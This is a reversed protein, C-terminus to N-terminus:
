LVPFRHKSDAETARRGRFGLATRYNYASITGVLLLVAACFNAAFYETIMAISSANAALLPRLEADLEIIAMLAMYNGMGTGVVGPVFVLVPLILWLSVIRARGRRQLLGLFAAMGAALSAVVLILPVFIGGDGLSGSYTARALGFSFPLAAPTALVLALLAKKWPIPPKAPVAEVLDASGATLGFFDGTPEVPDNRVARSSSLSEAVHLVGHGTSAKIAATSDVGGTWTDLLTACDPIRESRELCLSGEIADIMRQPLQPNLDVLPTRVGDCVRRFTDMMDTGVFAKQGTVLEYLIAGLSFIDAREDVSKSDRIQEPAMYSPTGMAVGSQTHRADGDEASIVRVLGFDAIKPILEDDAIALLINAPKLDRHILGYRHAANVGKLIGRGLADAQELTLSTERLLEALSPGRVYELVLAPAGSVELTDTVAVINPHRLNSQARGEQMLRQRIEPAPLSLVKIAHLSGLQSHRALYVVAMGGKGLTAEIVYREIATGTSLSM